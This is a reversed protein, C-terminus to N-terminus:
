PRHALQELRNVWAAFHPCRSLLPQIGILNIADTGADVKRDKFAPIHRIIRKSPATELGDNIEEPEQGTTNIEDMLSDVAKGEELFVQKLKLPDVLLLAEFEHVQIYPIFRHFDIDQELAKELHAVKRESTPLANVGTYGPFNRVRSLGYFDFMTTFWVDSLHGQQKIATRIDAQWLQYNHGGGHGKIAGGRRGNTIVSSASAFVQKDSLYPALVKTFFRAETPGEVIAFLRTM